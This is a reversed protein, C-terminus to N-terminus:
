LNAKIFNIYTASVSDCSYKIIARSLASAGAKQRQGPDSLFVAVADAFEGGAPDAVVCSTGALMEPMGGNPSAVMAKGRVMAELVVTPFTDWLSPVIVVWARRYAEDLESPSLQGLFRFYKARYGAKKELWHKTSGLFRAYSDDGAIEVRLGPFKLSLVDVLKPLYEIGKGIDIRGVLLLTPDQAEDNVWEPLLSIPNPIVATKPSLQLEQNRMEELIRKSPTLLIDAYRLSDRERKLRHHDRCCAANIFIKQWRYHAQAFRACKVVDNYHAKIVIPPRPKLQLLLSSEGLHDVGEIWDVGHERAKTLVLQAIHVKGIEDNRYARYVVGRDLMEKSAGEDGHSTVVVTYHGAKQLALTMYYIYRGIGSGRPPYEWCHFLIRM